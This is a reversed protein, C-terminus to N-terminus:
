RIDKIARNSLLAQLVASSLMPLLSSHLAIGSSSLSSVSLFQFHKSTFVKNEIM